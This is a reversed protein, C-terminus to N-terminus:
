TKPKYAALFFAVTAEVHKKVAQSSPPMAQGLMLKMMLEGKLLSFFQEAAKTTDPIVLQKQNIWEKLLEGFAARVRKPGAEYFIQVVQPHREAEALMTRHMCLSDPKLIHRAFSMGVEILAPEVPGQALRPYINESMLRDCRQKIVEKFLEDKDKFHSYITLKSVGAKAAIADVSTLSYGENVFLASAAEIISNRKAVDKPRGLVSRTKAPSKTTQM